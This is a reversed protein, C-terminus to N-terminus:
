DQLLGSWCECFIVCFVSYRVTPTNGDKTHVQVVPTSTGLGIRGGDDVYLSHSPAGAEITFPTRGGDIDDISFKNKGGNASDNATIQWDNTPFSATNSTDFFRIRLNNEKLRITDFGFSEGNVCDQGICASGDVILDDLIQQDLLRETFPKDNTRIYRPTTGSNTNKTGLERDKRRSGESETLSTDVISGDAVTFAGSIIQKPAQPGKKYDKPDGNGRSQAPVKKTMEFKYLGDEVAHEEFDSLDFSPKAGPGLDVEKIVGDPGQITLHFGLPSTGTEFKVKAGAAAWEPQGAQEPPGMSLVATDVIVFLVYLQSELGCDFAHAAVM